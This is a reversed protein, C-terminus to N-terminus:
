ETDVARRDGHDNDPNGAVSTLAPPLGHKHVAQRWRRRYREALGKRPGRYVSTKDFDILWARDQPDVLVNGPHLDPHWIRNQVLLDIQRVCTAMVAALCDPKQRSFQVLPIAGSIMRTVLWCRYLLQGQHVVTLPEPARIGLKRVKQLWDFEQEGRTAGWRLYRHRNCRRMLGGRTYIKVVVPGADALMLTPMRCRGGLATESPTAGVEFCAILQDRQHQALGQAHRFVYRRYPQPKRNTM